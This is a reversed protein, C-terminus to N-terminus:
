SLSIAERLSLRNSYLAKGIVMGCLGRIGKLKKVDEISTIGGSAYVNMRTQSVVKNIGEFNPGELTGDRYIDTYIVEKFGLEEVRKLAEEISFPYDEKWGEITVRNDWADIAVMFRETHWELASKVWSVDGLAATGLILKDIGLDLAKKVVDKERLGGGFQVECGVEKKIKGALELHHPAGTFAGDLDIIHLRKAGQDAWAKAMQVPDSSYTTVHNPNGRLLRVCSGAKIDVAPIILM